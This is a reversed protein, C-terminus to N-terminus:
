MDWLPGTLYRITKLNGLQQYEYPAIVVIIKNVGDNYTYAYMTNGEYMSPDLPTFGLPLLSKDIFERASKLDEYGVLYTQAANGYLTEIIGEKQELANKTRYNLYEEEKPIMLDDRRYESNYKLLQKDIYLEAAQQEERSANLKLYALAHKNDVISIFKFDIPVKRAVVNIKCDAKADKYKVIITTTGLKNANIYYKDKIIEVDAIEKNAYEFSYDASLTKDSNTIKLEVYDKEEIQAESLNLSIKIEEEVPTVVATDNNDDSSCSLIFVSIFFLPLLKTLKEM